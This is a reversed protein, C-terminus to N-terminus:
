RDQEFGKAGYRLLVILDRLQKDQMLIMERRSTIKFAKM